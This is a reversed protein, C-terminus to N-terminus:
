TVAKQYISRTSEVTEELRVAFRHLAEPLQQLTFYDGQHMCFRSAPDNGEYLQDWVIFQGSDYFKAAECDHMVLVVRFLSTYPQKILPGAALLLGHEASNWQDTIGTDSPWLRGLMHQIENAKETDSM